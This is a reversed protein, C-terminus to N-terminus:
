NKVSLITGGTSSVGGIIATVPYDGDALPSPVQIAIQYLAASGPTLAAGLVKVAVNNVKVVPLASTSYIQDAPVQIGSTYAPTTPGFGTAWFVIVDLPKAPITTVGPFTGSKVAWTYDPRTAVAQSGPWDFFAPSYTAIPVRYPLSAATGNTVVVQQPGVAVDPVVFNIVTPSVYEVYAPKGGVSVSVGDLNTPLRGNVIAKEWTDPASALGTGVITGWSNSSIGPLLSASNLVACIAPVTPVPLGSIKIILNHASDAVYVNEQCDVALGEAAISTSSAKGGNTVPGPQAGALSTIIGATNVERVRNNSTDGIFVNGAYDVIVGQPASLTANIAPGGDGSAGAGGSGAITSIIGATNVKRIVNAETIYINGANDVAVATPTSIAAATALLGDGTSNPSGNGAVTHILGDPSVMRIRKNVSDAIYLNGANDTALGFPNYIQAANAPGGDGSYGAVGTGAVTTIIGTPDVRRVKNKIRESFYVNGQGDVAVGWPLHIAANVALGGDGTSDATGNGAVTTIIGKSDVKRIRNDQYDAIYLNGLSDFAVATPETLSANTASGGDGIASPNGGAFITVIQAQSVAQALLGVFM